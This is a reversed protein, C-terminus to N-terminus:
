WGGMYIKQWDIYGKAPQKGYVFKVKHIKSFCWQSCYYIIKGGPRTIKIYDP